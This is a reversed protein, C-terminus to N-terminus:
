VLAFDKKVEKLVQKNKPKLLEGAIANCFETYTMAGSSLRRKKSRKAILVLATEITTLEAGQLQESLKDQKSM